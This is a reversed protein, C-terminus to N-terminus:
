GQASCFVHRSNCSGSDLLLTSHQSTYSLHGGGVAAGHSADRPPGEHDSLYENDVDQSGAVSKHKHFSWKHLLRFTKCSVPPQFHSEESDDPSDHRTKCGRTKTRAYVARSQLAHTVCNVGSGRVPEGRSKQPTTHLRTPTSSM